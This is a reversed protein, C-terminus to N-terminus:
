RLPCHRWSGADLLTERLVKRLPGRLWDGLPIGFGKQAPARVQPLLARGVEEVLIKGDSGQGQIASAAAFSSREHDLLPFRTELGCHMSAIDMKVLLDGPLLHSQGDPM